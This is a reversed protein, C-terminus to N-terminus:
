CCCAPWGLRSDAMPCVTSYLQEAVQNQLGHHELVGGPWCLGGCCRGVSCVVPQLWCLDPWVDAWWNFGSGAGGGQGRGEPCPGPMSTSLPSSCTPHVARGCPVRGSPASRWLGVTHPCMGHDGWCSAGLGGCGDHQGGRQSGPSSMGAADAPGAWCVLRGGAL